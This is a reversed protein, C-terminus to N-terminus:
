LNKKLKVNSLRTRQSAGKALCLKIKQQANNSTWHKYEPKILVRLKGFCHTASQLHM